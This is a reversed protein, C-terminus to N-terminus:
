EEKYLCNMIQWIDWEDTPPSTGVPLDYSIWSGDDKKKLRSRRSTDYGEVRFRRTFRNRKCGDKWSERGWIQVKDM